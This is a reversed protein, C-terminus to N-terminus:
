VMNVNSYKGKAIVVRRPLALPNVFQVAFLFCWLFHMRMKFSMNSFECRSKIAVLSKDLSKFDSKAEVGVDIRYIQVLQKCLSPSERCMSRNVNKVNM